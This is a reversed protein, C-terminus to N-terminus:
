FTGGAVIACAAAITWRTLSASPAAPTSVLALSGQDTMTMEGVEPRAPSLDTDPTSAAGPPMAAGVGVRPAPARPPRRFPPPATPSLSARRRLDIRRYGGDRRGEVVEISDSTPPPVSPVDTALAAAEPQGIATPRDSSLPPPKTADPDATSIPAADAGRAGAGAARGRGLRTARARMAIEQSRRPGDGRGAGKAAVRAGITRRVETLMETANAFRM